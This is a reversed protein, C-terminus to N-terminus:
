QWDGYIQFAAWYYPASADIEEEEGKENRVRIPGRILEMQAARLAEDKPMGDKLHRYFRVMLEATTRDSIKWLSAMVSRAGAYQFARTLGILGEGGMEKGLGSECASLVVLDADLRVQEFIEWAQLLGNDKGEEFKEPISLVVASDLPSQQDLVAHTAFHIYRFNRSISKARSETAEEGMYVQSRPYVSGIQQVEDRSAPLREFRFGKHAFARLRFDTLDRSGALPLPFSPDGFATLEPSNLSRPSSRASNRNDAFQAYVTASPVISISKWEALYFYRRETPDRYTLAGWPLVHLPGDNLIIIRQRPEIDKVAPGILIDFLHEGAKALVERHYNGGRPQTSGVILSKFLEIENRLTVEAIPITVVRLGGKSTVIFLHTSSGEVSYSLLVVEPELIPLLEESGLPQSDRPTKKSQTTRRIQEGVEEYDRRLKRLEGNLSEITPLARSDVKSLQRQVSDYRAALSHRASELAPPADGLTLDREALLSLFGRVRYQELFHFAKEPKANRVCFDIAEKYLDAFNAQFGAQEIQSGGLRGIQEEFEVLSREFYQFAVEKQGAKAAVKGLANLAQAEGSSHPSLKSQIDLANQYFRRAGELDGKKFALDGLNGLVNTSELSGPTVANQMELAKKFLNEAQALEGRARAVLAITGLTRAMDMNASSQQRQLELARRLYTESSNFDRRRFAELGLNHLLIGTIKGKPTNKEAIRLADLYYDAAADVDGRRGAIAGQILLSNAVDLSEPSIQRRIRLAQLNIEEALKVDGRAEAVLGLGETATALYTSNPALKRLLTLSREFYDQATRLDDKNYALDGLNVLISASTLNDPTLEEVLKLAELLVQTAKELNGREREVRAINNLIHSVTLSRPATKQYLELAKEFQVSARKLDGQETANTGLLLLSNAAILAGPALNDKIKLSETLM